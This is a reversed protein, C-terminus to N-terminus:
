KKVFKALAKESQGFVQAVYTGSELDTVFLTVANGSMKYERIFKGQSDYVVVKEITFTSNIYLEDTVVNPNIFIRDTCAFVIDVTPGVTIYNTKEMVVPNGTGTAKLKVTYTGNAAYYHIPNPEISYTDDGFDWQYNVANATENIFTFNTPVESHTKDVNFAPSPPTCSKAAKYQAVYSVTMDWYMSPSSWKESPTVLNSTNTKALATEEAYENYSNIIIQEPKKSLVRDWCLKRYFDGEVASYTRSVFSGKHNNWGPMVEMLFTSNIAGNPIGWGYLDPTNSNTGNCWRVTFKDSWPHAINYWAQRYSEVGYYCVLLPKGDQLLYTDLGGTGERNIVNNWVEKAEDEITQPNGSFQIGGIAFVYRMPRNVLNENWKKIEKAVAIARNFIIGGEVYLNNTEDMLLYDIQAASIEALHERIVISDGSDYQQYTGRSYPVSKIDWADWLNLLLPRGYGSPLVNWVGNTFAIAAVKGEGKPDASFVTTADSGMGTKWQFYDNFTSGTSYAVYWDGSSFYAIADCKKDGNVDAIMQKASGSGHGAKWLSYNGFKSGDSLAGYWYGQMDSVDFYAIADAKGDNNIDGVMQSKSGSGHGEHWCSASGDSLAVYWKGMFGSTDFFAVADAKGDGNVDGLMQTKSGSGHGTKWISYFGFKTGDSYAVYWDGTSFYVVADVKGDGNVDGLMQASSGQGHGSHWKSYNNFTTGNSISVYWTGDSFFVVADDKGDGNVDGLMQRTSGNGHGAHWLYRGNQVYWTSYWIGTMGCQAFLYGSMLVVCLILGTKKM